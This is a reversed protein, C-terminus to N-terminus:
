KLSVIYTQVGAQDFANCPETMEVQKFGATIHMGVGTRSLDTGNANAM